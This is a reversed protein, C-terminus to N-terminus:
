PLQEDRLCLSCRKHGEEGADGDTLCVAAVHQLALPKFSMQNQNDNLENVYAADRGCFAWRQASIKFWPTHSIDKTSSHAVPM